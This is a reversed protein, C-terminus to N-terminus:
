IPSELLIHIHLSKQWFKLKSKHLISVCDTGNCNQFFYSFHPKLFLLLSKNCEHIEIFCKVRCVLESQKLFQLLHADRYSKTLQQVVDQM